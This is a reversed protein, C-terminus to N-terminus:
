GIERFKVGFTWGTLNAPAALLKMAFATSDASSLIFTEGLQTNPTWLYGTLNNFVDPYKITFTGAGEASAAIGATGAAGATGGTIYSVPDSPKTKEPTAATLTPFPTVKFGLAIRIQASTTTGSQACWARIIEISRGTPPNIHVLTVAANAITINEGQVIYERM